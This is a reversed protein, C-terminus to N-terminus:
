VCLARKLFLRNFVITGKKKLFFTSNELFFPHHQHTKGDRNRVRKVAAWGVQLLQIISPSSLSLFPLIPNQNGVM